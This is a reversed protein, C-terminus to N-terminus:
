EPQVAKELGGEGVMSTVATPSHSRCRARILRFYLYNSPSLSVSTAAHTLAIQGGQLAPIQALSKLAAIVSCSLSTGSPLQLRHSPAKSKSVKWEELLILARNRERRAGGWLDTASPMRHQSKEEGLARAASQLHSSLAQVISQQISLKSSSLLRNTPPHTACPPWRKTEIASTHSSIPGSAAPPSSPAPHTICNGM